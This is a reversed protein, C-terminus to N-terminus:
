NNPCNDFQPSSHMVCLQCQCNRSPQNSVFLFDPTKLRQKLSHVLLCTHILQFSNMERIGAQDCMSKMNALHTFRYYKTTSAAGTLLPKHRTSLAHRRSRLQACCLALQHVFTQEANLSKMKKISTVWFCLDNKTVWQTKSYKKTSDADFCMMNPASPFGCPPVCM